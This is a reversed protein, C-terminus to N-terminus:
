QLGKREGYERWAQRVTQLQTSGGHCLPEICHVIYFRRVRSDEVQEELAVALETDAEAPSQPVNGPEPEPEMDSAAAAEAAVEAAAPRERQRGSTM